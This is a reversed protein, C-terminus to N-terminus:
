RRGRCVCAARPRTCSERRRSAAFDSQFQEAYSFMQEDTYTNRGRVDKVVRLTPRMRAVREWQKMEVTCFRNLEPRWIQEIPMGAPYYLGESFSLDQGILIIPDCGLHEALYLSLHAVTSGARLKGRQPAASRMLDDYWDNYLVHARGGFADLVHWTAKPEAVLISDRVDEIGRFFQASLEHFDLSTVFHPPLGRALLTKFVTQVAIIVARGRLEALQDINRALSPGAAVLIAPYGKGRGALVEVGPRRLYAALNFAINKCTIRANRLLTVMQLRAFAIFDMLLRRVEAQFAAHYRAAHPLSVFQLGLLVDAHVPRMAAHFVGKDLSTLLVLRGDALPASLDTVCLAAKILPLDDEAVILRPRAFQRELEAVHYGLGLGAIFFSGTDGAEAANPDDGAAHHAEVFRRAEEAPRYRSHAYVPKGDDAPLRVTYDGDRAAELTPCASFPLADIRAALDSHSRYIAALNKSYREAFPALDGWAGPAAADLTDSVEGSMALM